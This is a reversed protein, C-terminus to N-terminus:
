SLSEPPTIQQATHVFGERHGGAPTTCPPEQVQLFFRRLADLLAEEIPLIDYGEEASEYPLGANDPNDYYVLVCREIDEMFRRRDEPTVNVVIGARM